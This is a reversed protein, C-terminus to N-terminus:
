FMAKIALQIRRPYGRTASITGFATSTTTTNPNAFQPHNLANMSEARFQLKLKETIRTNKIASLDINNTGPGRVSAFRLPFTRVNNSLAKSSVTEFSSTNFWHEISREGSSLAIDKINGYFLANGFGLAAGMQWAYIGQLQWGSILANVGRPATSFLRHGKGFPLELIGSASFRHPFDQESIARSPMPDMDNLYAIAEMFKSWTYTGQVTFGRAMRKDVKMQLSHYWSYGQNTTTSVTGFQPYASLLGSRGINAGNRGTGPLLGAFPNPMNTTLYNIRGQDRVPSTSLYELQTGNLNRTTELKTGRNGMYTAELVVRGPLERQLGFQWRQMYPTALKTNFFSINQGLYTNVGQSAGPAETIGNPFPNALSSIFTLGSDLTPVLSTTYSFGTQIVDGRRIGMSTYFIGYGARLVTKPTLSYALGIRPMFNNGDRDWLNRSQGNVGAYLLGGQVKFQGAAVEPTPNKAYAAQAQATVSLAATPDFGRVSRNWREALPGEVEYRLGLSVTLKRTLKWDDQYFFAWVNSEDAFSSRRDVGGGTPIGLLFSVLGGGIPASSANDLPGRTYSDSFALQGTSSIDPNIQNKYYIRYQAGFKMNHNGRIHDFQLNFDHTDQPRFLVTGNTGYYGSINIYPFRRIDKPIADNWSKPLGLSTLDFGLGQPNRNVDRIFRNYGYRVNMVLNPSFTYVDDLAGNLSHFWFWEGTSINHFHDSYTSARNYWSARGFVRHRDSINHDVRWTHTYYTIAEPLNPQVLNNTGDKTGPTNPMSYYKLINKAIPSIRSSPVINGPLPDEQFRGGSVARRTSPDYFQYNSGVKLLASFDGNREDETPVTNVSGRPRTEHIGEYGYTIFTRNRGNYLKPIYVPGTLSGGWRNYSFDSKAQGTRNSFFNNAFLEPAMKYYYGTGHFDNGGSKISMSVAGGETQGVSADFAATQVKMEGLIDVPPVYSASVEGAGASSAGAPAGDISLENKLGRSGGMSYNAIHSPEFPRDLGPDGAFAVGGSIAMLAYPEGHAIPLDAVRRADVVSGLSANTTELLPTEATVNVTETVAGVELVLNVELRDNVRVEINDRVTRKFGTAEATVRYKGLLLFPAEFNGQENSKLNMTIGTALNTVQVTAGTVVANQPDTVRGLITGRAEQSWAMAASFVALAALGCISRMQM